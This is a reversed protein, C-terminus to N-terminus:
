APATGGLRRRVIRGLVRAYGPGARAVAFSSTGMDITRDIWSIPVEALDHGELLPQLGVEANAAFGDEEIRLRKYIAEPLLKLNNSVDHASVPVVLKLLLHFGRNAVIKAFPYNVLISDQSFRSGFAGERGAAVADFLDRLEPVILAFDADMSLVYRGSAAAYGDRLSGGVGPAGSREVLRVRPDRESLSRVVAATDDTSHDDVVVIEHLYDDYLGVLASVLTAITASENRCPVVVSTSRRLQPHVALDVQPRRASRDGPKKAWLYLTGCLDKIAPTHEFFYAASQVAPILKAPFRPHLIDYPIVEIQTFGARSTEQLLRFRRLGIECPAQGAWRGISPVVNKVLVQPNWYNAEFFLLEGGPKLLRHLARLNHGYADHCLIATGVVYDFSEPELDRGLDGLCAVTVNPLRRTRARDALDDNFVAATIPNEGRLARTLHATWLGSGAGLELISEGPLVHFAHRVTLARWRLKVPSTGPYRLWYAERSREMARLNRELRRVPESATLPDSRDV